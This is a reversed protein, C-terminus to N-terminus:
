PACPGRTITQPHSKFYRLQGYLQPRDIRTGGTRLASFILFLRPMYPQCFIRVQPLSLLNINDDHEDIRDLVKQDGVSAQDLSARYTQAKSTLHKNADYSPPYDEAYKAATIPHNSRFAEDETAEQDLFDLAKIVGSSFDQGDV